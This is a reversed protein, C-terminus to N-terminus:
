PQRILDRNARLAAVIGPPAKAPSGAAYPPQPDYEIGLQVAQALEPGAIEGALTLALDIGSSVGAATAFKGDIVAREAVPTAGYRALQDLALWHTTARQGDLLGAAGLVLSGTCVSTTWTRPRTPRACGTSSRATPGVAPALGGPVLLMDPHPVDALTADAVLSLRGTDARM